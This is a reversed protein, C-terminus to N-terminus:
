LGFGKCLEIAQAETFGAEVHAKFMALRTAAIETAHEKLMPMMRIIQAFAGAMADREFNPIERINNSM